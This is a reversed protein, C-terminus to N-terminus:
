PLEGPFLAEVPGPRLRLLVGMVALHVEDAAHALAQHARGALDRFTRGLATEPHVGMGVENTVVLVHCPARRLAQALAAARREIEAPAVGDVLQNSLWLTICDIVAVDFGDLRGVAEVLAIPEEVLEFDGAREAQHRRIREAMEDDYARATAIFARRTGLSRARAVAYASKGSRVGGGVLILRGSM